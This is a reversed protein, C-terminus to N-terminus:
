CEHKLMCQFTNHMLVVQDYSGKRKNGPVEARNPNSATGLKRGALDDMGYSTVQVGMSDSSENSYSLPYMHYMAPGQMLECHLGEHMQAYLVSKKDRSDERGYSICQIPYVHVNYIYFHLYEM